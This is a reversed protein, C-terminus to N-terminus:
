QFLADTNVWKPGDGHLIDGVAVPIADANEMGGEDLTRLPNWIVFGIRKFQSRSGVDARSTEPDAPSLLLGVAKSASREFNRKEETMDCELDRRGPRASLRVLLLVTPAEFTNSLWDGLRVHRAKAPGFADKSWLNRHDDALIGVIDPHVRWRGDLHFEIDQLRDVGAMAEILGELRTTLGTFCAWVDNEENDSGDILLGSRERRILHTGMVCAHEVVCGFTLQNWIHLASQPISMAPHVMWAKHAPWDEPQVMLQSAVPYKALVAAALQVHLEDLTFAMARTSGTLADPASKGVQVDFVQMIAYVRDEERSTTRAQSAALLSFPNGMEGESFNYYGRDIVVQVELNNFVGEIVGVDMITEKLRAMEEAAMDFPHEKLIVRIHNWFHVWSHLSLGQRLHNDGYEERCMALLNSSVGDRFLFIAGPSLFGEQLTWLSSFWPDSTFSRLLNTCSGLWARVLGAEGRYLDGMNNMVENAAHAWAIIDQSVHSSLWVFVDAAGRFIRAQRGVESANEPSNPTQDICAIDLWVFNVADYGPYPCTAMALTARLEDVTFVEPNIRPLYREWTTGKIPLAAVEPQINSPLVYRGWTYSIANYRPEPQNSYINGRQWPYSTLTPVHLLRRPWPCEDQWAEDM